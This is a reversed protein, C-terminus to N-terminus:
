PMAARFRSEEEEVDGFSQPPIQRERSEVHHIGGCTVLHLPQNARAGRCSWVQRECSVRQGSECYPDQYLDEGLLFIEM